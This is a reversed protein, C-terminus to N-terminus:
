AKTRKSFVEGPTPNNEQMWNKVLSLLKNVKEDHERNPATKRVKFKSGTLFESVHAYNILENPEM